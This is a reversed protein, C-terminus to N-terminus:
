RAALAGMPDWAPLMQPETDLAAQYEEPLLDRHVAVEFVYEDFWSDAMTWFGKDANDAGWSNEVRWRNVTPTGAASNEDNPMEALDCGTFVMAHTMLSDGSVLRQLKNMSFDVGYTASYDFLKPDWVGHEGDAQAETDCGFWVPRQHSVLSERVANRLVEMPANLYTVPKAGVVNGLYEVGYTKSYEHRPDNVVCVYEGLNGPLYKEAFQQPTFEGARTFEDDKNRYQWVFKEPPLGLHATLVQWVDRLAEERLGNREGAAAGRIRMTARRLVAELDRNMKATNSSSNTEPMAYQPVVGYKEVLAVFMNWQGGDDIPNGLLHSVTRDLEDRDALEIMSSLFYNAKEFKDWFHLYTQSLEFDKIKTEAMIAGRLSNLGAFIWCRGSRKQNAVAWTDVKHSVTPNLELM